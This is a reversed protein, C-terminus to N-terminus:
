TNGNAGGISKVPLDATIFNCLDKEMRSKSPIRHLIEEFGKLSEARTRPLLSPLMGPIVKYSIGVIITCPEQYLPEM